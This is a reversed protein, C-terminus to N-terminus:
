MHFARVIYLGSSEEATIQPSELLGELKCVQHMLLLRELPM